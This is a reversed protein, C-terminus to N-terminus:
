CSPIFCLPAKFGPIPKEQLDSFSPRLRENASLRTRKTASLARRRGSNPVTAWRRKVHLNDSGHTHPDM